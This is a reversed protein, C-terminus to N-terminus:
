EQIFGVGDEDVAPASKKRQGVLRGEPEPMHHAPKPPIQPVATLPIDADLTFEGPPPVNHAAIRELEQAVDDVLIRLYNSIKAASDATIVSRTELAMRGLAKITIAASNVAKEIAKKNDDASAM